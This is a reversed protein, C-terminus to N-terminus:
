NNSNIGTYREKWFQRTETGSCINDLVRHFAAALLLMAEPKMENVDKAEDKRFNDDGYYTEFKYFEIFENHLHVKEKTEEVCTERALNFVSNILAMQTKTFRSDKKINQEGVFHLHIHMSRDFGNVYVEGVEYDRFWHVMAKKAINYRIYPPNDMKKTKGAFRSSEMQPQWRKRKPLHFTVKIGLALLLAHLNANHAYISDIDMKMNLSPFFPFDLYNSLREIIQYHHQADHVGTISYTPYTNRSRKIVIDGTENENESQNENSNNVNIDEEPEDPTDYQNLDSIDDDSDDDSNLLNIIQTEHERLRMADRESPGDAELIELGRNNM